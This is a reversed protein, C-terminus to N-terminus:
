GKKNKLYYEEYEVLKNYYAKKNIKKELNIKSLCSKCIYVEYEKITINNGTPIKCELCEFIWGDKRFKSKYCNINKTPISRKKFFTFM